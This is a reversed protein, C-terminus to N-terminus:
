ELNDTNGDYVTCNDKLYQSIKKSLINEDLGLLRFLEIYPLLHDECSTQENLPKNQNWVFPPIAFDLIMDDTIKGKAQMILGIVMEKAPSVLLHLKSFKVLM